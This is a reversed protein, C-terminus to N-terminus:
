TRTNLLNSLEVYDMVSLQDPRLSFDFPLEAMVESNCFQKVSNRLTKRRQQFCTNVLQNFLARNDIKPPKELPVLRVIASDVKPRPTFCEPPVGFLPEVRCLVQAMVTLRGYTKSGSAAALRDVVEQQLMFHMDKILSHQDLLRFILPTSINYPLNGVVRLNSEGVSALDFQLADIEIVSLNSHLRQQQRLREALDRDIEVVHIPRGTKLLPITIAGQGPGIEVVHDNEGVNISRVIRDIIGTDNLFNQGFRKRPRHKQQKDETM